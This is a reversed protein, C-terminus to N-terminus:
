EPQDEQSKSIDKTYIWEIVDGPELKYSGAGVNPSVGNVKYTWGSMPGMDFEYLNNIGKIYPSANSGSFDMHIKEERTVQKLIDFVTQDAELETAVRGLIIDDAGAISMTISKKPVPAPEKVQKPAACSSLVLIPLIFLLIKKKM